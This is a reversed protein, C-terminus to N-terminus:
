EWQETVINKMYRESFYKGIGIADAEDDTVKLDYWKEILNQMSRKKDTRTRGSVGCYSRWVNTNVTEYNVNNEFCVEMLIGQLHALTEFVTIGMSHQGNSTIQFQIGEFGVKDPRWIKIMSELWIKIEHCRAIENELNTSFTGYKILKGNDWVSWGTIKTAQDLAFIRTIGRGKPVIKTNQNQINNKNCIPCERHERIKKWTSYVKHGEPCEFILESDLNEYKESILKWNDKELLARIEDVKKGM